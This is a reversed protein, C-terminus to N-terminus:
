PHVGPLWRLRLRGARPDVADVTVAIREGLAVPGRLAIRSRHLTEELVVEAEQRGAPVEDLVRAALPQGVRDALWRLGWYRESWRQVVEAEEVAALSRELLASDRLAGDLEAGRLHLSIAEHAWWDLARRLPSSAQVYAAVGLGAHPAPSPSWQARRMHKLLKAGALFRDEHEMWRELGKMVEPGEQVRFVVPLRHTVCYEGALRNFLVMMERVLRRAPHDWAYRELRLAGGERVRFRVEPLDLQFAGADRREQELQRGCWLLRDLAHALPDREGELLRQHVEEWRLNAAVRVEGLVFRWSTLEMSRSWRSLLTLVPRRTGGRLALADVAAAPLMPIESEPLYLTAGRQRAEGAVVGAWPFLAPPHAVHVGLEFGGDLLEVVSLADDFDETEQGDITFAVHELASLAFRPQATAAAESVEAAFGRARGSRRLELNEDPHLLGLLELAVWARSPYTRLREDLGHEFADLWADLEWRDEEALTGLVARELWVLLEIPEEAHQARLKLAAADRGSLAEGLARAVAEREQAKRETRARSALRAAVQQRSTAVFRGKRWTFYLSEDRLCRYLALRLALPPAHAALSPAVRALAAVLDDLEASAESDTDIDTSVGADLASGEDRGATADVQAEWLAIIQEALAGRIAEAAELLGPLVTWAPLEARELHFTLDRRRVTRLRGEADQLVVRPGSLALIRGVCFEGNTLIEALDGPQIM